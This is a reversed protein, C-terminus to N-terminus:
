TRVSPKFPIAPVPVSRPWWRRRFRWSPWSLKLASSYYDLFVELIRELHQQKL